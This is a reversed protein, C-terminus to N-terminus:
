VRSSPVTVIRSLSLIFCSRIGASCDLETKDSFNCMYNNAVSLTVSPFRYVADKERDIKIVKFGIGESKVFKNPMALKLRM